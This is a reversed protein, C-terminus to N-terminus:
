HHHASGMDGLKGVLSQTSAATNPMGIGHRQPFGIRSPRLNDFVSGAALQLLDVRWDVIETLFTFRVESFIWLDGPFRDVELLEVPNGSEKAGEHPAEPDIPLPKMENGDLGAAAARVSTFEAGDGSKESARDSESGVLAHHLLHQFQFRECALVAALDGDKEHVVIEGDIYFPGLRQPSGVNGGAG